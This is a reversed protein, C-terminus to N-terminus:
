TRVFVLGSDTRDSLVHLLESVDIPKNLFGLAGHKYSRLRDAVSDSGTLVIVPIHRLHRDEWVTDLLERGSMRPLGLDLLILDVRRDGVRGEYEQRQLLLLASEADPVVRVPNLLRARQLAHMTLDADSPDDEVLLILGASPPIGEGKSAETKATM